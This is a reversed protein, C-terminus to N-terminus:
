FKTIKLSPANNNGSFQIIYVGFPLSTIDLMISNPLYNIKPTQEKGNISYVKLRTSAIAGKITIIDKERTFTIGTEASLTTSMIGNSIDSSLIFHYEKVNSTCYSADLHSSTIHISDDTEKISIPENIDYMQLAGSALRVALIDNDANASVCLFCMISILLHKM